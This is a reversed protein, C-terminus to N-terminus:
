ALYDFLSMPKVQGNGFLTSGGAGAGALAYQQALMAAQRSVADTMKEKKDSLKDVEQQVAVAQNAVAGGSALLQGARKAMQEALGSGAKVFVGTVREPDAALATKLKAEDLVLSGNRRSIGMAALAKQDAGDLLQGMQATAQNLATDSAADGSRLAALKGSMANFAGVFEKVNAGIAAPDRAVKVESKGAASLTLSVGAIATDLKNTPASLTKGDVTLQADQPATKQTMASNIGPGYSFLGQLVPDGSVGIRMGNAAGSKGNLSLAYGKGDQVVQADLGADRMAEAIGDLTNNNGDIKVTTASSGSEVRITTAAGAGLAAGRDPLAKSALQQAQALQKVEVTHTGAVANAGSLKAGVGKASSSAAMNLGAVSLGGVASRFGDLALAMKGLSSLRADDRRLQADITKIGPNQALLSKTASTYLDSLRSSTGGLSLATTSTTTTM